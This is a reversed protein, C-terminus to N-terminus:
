RTGHCSIREFGLAVNWPKSNLGLQFEVSTRHVPEQACRQQLLQEQALLWQQREELM